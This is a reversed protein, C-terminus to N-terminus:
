STPEERTEEDHSPKRSNSHIHHRYLRFFGYLLAGLGLVGLLYKTEKRELVKM